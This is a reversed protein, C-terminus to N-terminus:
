SFQISRSVDWNKKLNDDWICGGVNGENQLRSVLFLNSGKKYIDSTMGFGPEQINNSFNVAGGDGTSIGPKTGIIQIAEDAGSGNISSTIYYNNPDQQILYVSISQTWPVILIRFFNDVLIFHGSIDNQEGIAGCSGPQAGGNASSRLVTGTAPYTLTFGYQTNTYIKWNSTDLTQNQNTFIFTSLIQSFLDQGQKIDDESTNLSTDGTKLWITYISKSDPSLFSVSNINESGARPLPQRANQGDITLVKVPYPMNIFEDINKFPKGTSQNYNGRNSFTFLYTGNPDKFSQDFGSGTPIKPIETWTSPVKFTVNDDKYTFLNTNNSQNPLSTPILVSNTASQGNISQKGLYYAGFLGLIVLAGLVVGVILGNGKQNM